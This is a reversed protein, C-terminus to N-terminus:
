LIEKGITYEWKVKSFLTQKKIVTIYATVKMKDPILLEKQAIIYQSNLETGDDAKILRSGFRLPSDPQSILIEGIGDRFITEYSLVDGWRTCDYSNGNTLYIKWTRVPLIVEHVYGKPKKSLNIVM